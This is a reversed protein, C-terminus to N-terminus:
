YGVKSLYLGHAPATAASQTRDKLAILESIYEPQWIKKGVNVLSSVIIRVQNHMFSPASIQLKILEPAIRSINVSSITKIPSRAQCHASRFSSLDHTGIFNQAAVQMASIDLADPIHWARNELLISGNQRNLILYIYSRMKASFRAHFDEAVIQADLIIVPHPKLFHNLSKVLKYTDHLENLEFHAVQGMAHVGRDTRGSGAVECKQKTLSFIAEEIVQQVTIANQQIQWGAFNTGDYEITIKYRVM